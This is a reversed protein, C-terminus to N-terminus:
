EDGPPPSVSQRDARRNSCREDRLWCRLSALLRRELTRLCGRTLSMASAVESQSLEDVYRLLAFRRSVPDLQHIFRATAARERNWDLAREPELGDGELLGGTVPLPVSPAYENAISAVLKSARAYQRLHDLRINRTIQSLYPRFPRSGDYALRARTSFARLFVEQAVDQQAEKDQLGAVRRTPPGKLTFGNRLWSRVDDIYCGYIQALVEPDGARFRPLLQQHAALTPALLTTALRSADASFAASSVDHRLSQTSPSREESHM